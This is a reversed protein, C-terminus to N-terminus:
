LLPEGPPSQRSARANMPQGDIDPLLSSANQWSRTLTDRDMITHHHHCLNHCHWLNDDVQFKSGRQVNSHSSCNSSWVFADDGYDKLTAPKRSKQEMEENSWRGVSWRRRRCSTFIWVCQACMNWIAGCLDNSRLVRQFLYSIIYKPVFLWFWQQGVGFWKTQECKTPRRRGCKSSGSSHATRSNRVNNNM